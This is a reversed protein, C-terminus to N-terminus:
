GKILTYDKTPRCYTEKILFISFFLSVAVLAILFSFAFVYDERGLNTAGQSHYDLLWGIVPANISSFLFIICNNFGLGAALYFKSCQEAMIAFGVSQGSAGVGLLFFASTLIIRSTPFFVITIVSLLCCLAALIM